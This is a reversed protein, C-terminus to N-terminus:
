KHVKSITEFHGFSYTVKQFVIFNCTLPYNEMKMLMLWQWQYSNLLVSIIHKSYAPVMSFLMVHNQLNEGSTFSKGKIVVLTMTQFCSFVIMTITDWAMTCKIKILLTISPIFSTKKPPLGWVSDSLMEISHGLKLFIHTFKWLKYDM